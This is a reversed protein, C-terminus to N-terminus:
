RRDLQNAVADVGTSSTSDGDKGYASEFDKLIRALRGKEDSSLNMKMLRDFSMILAVYIIQGDKDDNPVSSENLGALEQLRSKKM